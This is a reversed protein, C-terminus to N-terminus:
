SKKFFKQEKGLRRLKQTFSKLKVAFLKTRSTKKKRKENSKLILRLFESDYSDLLLQTNPVM